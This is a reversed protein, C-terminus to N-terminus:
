RAQRGTTHRVPHRSTVKTSACGAVTILALLCPVLQSRYKM